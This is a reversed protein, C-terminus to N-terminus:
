RGIFSAGLGFLGGLVNQGFASTTQANRANQADVNAIISANDTANIPAINAGLFNPQSVQGGSLLASIQNIRQNDEALQEQTAQARGNLLLQNQSDNRSRNFADIERDFASSGAKIGQNALRTRLDSEQRAFEPALRENGLDFLRQETDSNNISFNGTLQDGLTGSLTNGLSALNLSAQNNQDQIAQQEDSLETVRTFTPVDISRGTFEDFISNTGTQNFTTSGNPGIENPNQLFANAIATSVNSSTQAASTEDAPTPAPAGKSSGM